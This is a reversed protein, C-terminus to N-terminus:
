LTRQPLTFTVTTGGGSSDEIWIRGGHREVIRQCTALGIGHGDAATPDVKTFMTFVRARQEPPIGAGNDRVAIAWGAQEATATVRIRCPRGPDRYKIANGILNQLLQRLLTPDGYVHPLDEALVQAAAEEVQVRLDLVSQELVDTLDAREQRCTASGAQAYTLLSTILGQMRTVGKTATAIWTLGREDLLDSYVEGLLELYGAVVTLPSILDHSAVAAFRELEDNSRELEASREALASHADALAAERARDITVDTMAVVAGLTAGDPARLARGSTVAHTAPRDAPAIVFEANHVKGDRLARALPVDQPALRTSGDVEFLNYREAHQAPDVDADADLGHWDRAARNFLSLRGTSDAAVIGIDITDLVADTFEHRAELESLTLRMLERQEDAEAALNANLHAQRRREFLAVIVRAADQLLALQHPTLDHPETDFVCLTGLVSGAPTTLPVSAYFRVAALAGTVWPNQAYDPHASADRTWFPAGTLFRVACMSDSRLSDGGQFGVTTLQCQRHEDILNLTATPVQAVAAALRVVAELEDDAPEDLLRYEHLEALRRQEVVNGM